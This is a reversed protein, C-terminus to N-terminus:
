HGASLWSTQDGMGGYQGWVMVSKGEYRDRHLVNELHYGEGKM